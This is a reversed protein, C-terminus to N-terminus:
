SPWLATWTSCPMGPLTHLSSLSVYLRVWAVCMCLLVFVRGHWVCVCYCLCVGMGCVCVCVCRKKINEGEKQAAPLVMAKYPGDVEFFITCEKKVTYTRKELSDLDQYQHNTYNDNVLKNLVICPYSVTLPRGKGAISDKTQTHTISFLYVFQCRTLKVCM